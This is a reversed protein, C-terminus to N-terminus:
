VGVGGEGVGGEGGGDASSTGRELIAGGGVSAVMDKAGGRGRDVARETEVEGRHRRWGCWRRGGRMLAARVGDSVGSVGFVVGGTGVTGGASNSSASGEGGEGEGVGSCASATAACSCRTSGFVVGVSEFSGDEGIGSEEETDFLLAGDARVGTM